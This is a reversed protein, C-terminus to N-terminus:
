EFDKKLVARDSPLLSETGVAQGGAGSAADGGAVPGKSTRELDHEV